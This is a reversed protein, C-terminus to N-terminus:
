KLMITKILKPVDEKEMIHIRDISIPNKYIEKFMQIYRSVDGKALIATGIKTDAVVRNNDVRINEFQLTMKNDIDRNLKIFGYFSKENWVVSIPVLKKVM